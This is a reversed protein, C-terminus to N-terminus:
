GYGLARNFRGAVTEFIQLDGASLQTRWKEDLQIATAGTLRMRHGLVHYQGASSGESSGPAV